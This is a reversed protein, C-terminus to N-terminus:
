NAAQYRILTLLSEELDQFRELGLVAIYEAEIENKIEVSDRMLREGAPAFRILTARRDAPDPIYEVLGEIKLDQLLQGTMQKTIGSREAITSIRVGQLEIHAMVNIHAQTIGAHNYGRERVKQMMRMSFARQANLLLRGLHRQRFEELPSNADQPNPM